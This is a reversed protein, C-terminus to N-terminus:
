SAYVARTISSIASSDINTSYTLPSCHLLSVLCLRLVSLAQAAGFMGLVPLCYCFSVCVCICVCSSDCVVVVVVGGGGGCEGLWCGVADCVAAWLWDREHGCLQFLGCDDGAHVGPQWKIGNRSLVVLGAPGSQRNGVFLYLVTWRPEPM